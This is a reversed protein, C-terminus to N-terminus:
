NNKMGKVRIITGLSHSDIANTAICKITGKMESQVKRVVLYSKEVNNIGSSNYSITYNSNVSFSGNQNGSVLVIDTSPSSDPTLVWSWTLYSTNTPYIFGVM